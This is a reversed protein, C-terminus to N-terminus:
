PITVIQCVGSCGPTSDCKEGFSAQIRGDGCYPALMCLTGCKGMGYPNAENAGCVDCAETGNKMGDGRRPGQTCDSNCKGYGGVNRQAGDDCQEGNDLGAHRQRM